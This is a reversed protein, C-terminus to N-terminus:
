IGWESDHFEQHIIERQWPDYANPQILGGAGTPPGVGVENPKKPDDNAVQRASHQRAWVQNTIGPIYRTCKLPADARVRLFQGLLPLCHCSARPRAAM